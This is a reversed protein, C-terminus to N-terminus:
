LRCLAKVHVCGVAGWLFDALHAHNYGDGSIFSSSSAQLSSAPQRGMEALCCHHLLPSWSLGKPELARSKRFYLYKNLTHVTLASHYLACYRCPMQPPQLPGPINGLLTAWVQVMFQLSISSCLHPESSSVPWWQPPLAYTHRGVDGIPM